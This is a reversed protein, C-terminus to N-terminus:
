ILVCGINCLKVILSETSMKLVDEFTFYSLIPKNM